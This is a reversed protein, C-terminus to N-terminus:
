VGAMAEQEVFVPANDRLKVRIKTAEKFRGRILEESLPDGLCKQITRRM